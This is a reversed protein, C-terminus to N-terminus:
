QYSDLLPDNADVEAMVIDIVPYIARPDFDDRGTTLKQFQEASVLYFVENSNPDFLEVPTGSLAARKLDPDLPARTM